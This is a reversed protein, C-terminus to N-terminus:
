TRISEKGKRDFLLDGLNWKISIYKAFDKPDNESEIDKIFNNYNLNVHNTIKNHTEKDILIQEERFFTTFGNSDIYLIFIINNNFKNTLSFQGKELIEKKIADNKTLNSLSSNVNISKMIYELHPIMKKIFSKFKVTENSYIGLSKENWKFFYNGFKIEPKILPHM